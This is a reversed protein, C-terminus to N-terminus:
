TRLLSLVINLYFTFFFGFDYNTVLFAFVPLFFFFFVAETVCDPDIKNDIKKTQTFSKRLPPNSFLKKELVLKKGEKRHCMIRGVLTMEFPIELAKRQSAQGEM